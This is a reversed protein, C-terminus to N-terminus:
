GNIRCQCDTTGDYYSYSNYNSYGNYYYTALNSPEPTTSDALAVHALLGAMALVAINRLSSM